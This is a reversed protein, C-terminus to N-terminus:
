DNAGALGSRTHSRSEGILIGPIKRAGDHSTVPVSQFGRLCYGPNFNEPDM